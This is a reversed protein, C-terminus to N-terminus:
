KGICFRGFIESLIEEVGTEGTIEGLRNLGRHLDALVFEESLGEGMAKAASGLHEGAGDLCRCHRVNTIMLGDEGLLEEGLLRLRIEERLTEIREGTRASVSLSPWRAQYIQRQGASWVAPLDAKNFVALCSYPELRRYLLDDGEDHPRSPDLVLLIADADAMARRSRDVGEREVADEGERLGATDVLRVPIGGINASEAVLDRTTGPFETVIAREEGLLANFLSSKGVNPRGAIALSFGDRLIRGYRFSGAWRVIESRAADIRAGLDARAAPALDDEVFEVASELEVIVDILRQKIGKLRQSLDGEAQRRAARLQHRTRAEIMDRVAEAQALDMKGHLFARLTFEGPEAPRAGLSCLCDLLLGVIMPSGHVSLEVVDEGTYSHPAQFCVALARDLDRGDRPDVLRGLVAKRDELAAASPGADFIRRLIARSEPGSMRVVAIASRGYASSLACITENPVVM